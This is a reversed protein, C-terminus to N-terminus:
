ISRSASEHQEASASAMSSNVLRAAHQAIVLEEDTPIVYVEVDSRQSSVCAADSLNSTSDISVGLWAADECIKARITPAHEGIGGTFVLVDLGGLAAALSGLERTARYCFLDIADAAHAADSELLDRMDDSIGSVGLLGSRHALLDEVEALTLGRDRMLYLVVGPDLEGCRRGMVLGDLVTFGMTTAVSRGHEIACMSAGHGLHAVVVKADAKKGAFRDLVSTIYEYSSAMFDM